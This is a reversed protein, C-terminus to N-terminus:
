SLAKILATETLIAGGTGRTPGSFVVSLPPGSLVIVHDAVALAEAVDHTVAIVTRRDRAHLSLFVEVLQRKKVADQAQFPEDMLLLDSPRAFARAISARQREGGSIRDPYEGERGALGVKALYERALRRREENPGSLALTINRELTKWPILRPEQFVYSVRRAPNSAIANLLTTKGCGSKGLISTISGDPIELAFDALVTKKGYSANLSGLIM